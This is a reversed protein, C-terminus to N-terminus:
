PKRHCGAALEAHLCTPHGYPRVKDRVLPFMSIIVPVIPNALSSIHRVPDQGAVRAAQWSRLVQDREVLPPRLPIEGVLRGVQAPQARRHRVDDGPLAVDADVQDVVALVPVRHALPIVVAGPPGVHELPQGVDLQGVQGDRLYRLRLGLRALDPERREALATVPLREQVRVPGSRLRPAASGPLRDRRDAAPRDGVLPLVVYLPVDGVHLRRHRGRADGVAEQVRHRRAAARPEAVVEVGVVLLHHVGARVRHALLVGRDDVRAQHQLEVVRRDGLVPVLDVRRGADLVVPPEGPLTDLREVVRDAAQGRSRIRKWRHQPLQCPGCM